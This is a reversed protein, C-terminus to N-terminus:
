RILNMAVKQAIGQLLSVVVLAVGAWHLADRYEKLLLDRIVAYPFSVVWALYFPIAVFAVIMKLFDSPILGATMLVSSLVGGVVIYAYGAASSAFHFSWRPPGATCRWAMYYLGAGGFSLIVVPLQGLFFWNMMGGAGEGAVLPTLLVQILRVLATLIFITGGILLIWHGPQSLPLPQRRYCRAAAVLLLAVAIGTFPATVIASLRFFTQLGTTAADGVGAVRPMEFASIQLRSLALVIATGLTWLMLHAISLKPRPVPPQPPIEASPLNRIPLEPASSM